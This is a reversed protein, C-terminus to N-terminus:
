FFGICVFLFCGLMKVVEPEGLFTNWNNFFMEPESTGVQLATLQGLVCWCVWCKSSSGMFRWMSWFFLSWVSAAPWWGQLLESSCFWRRSSLCRWHGAQDKFCIPRIWCSACPLPKKHTNPNKPTKKAVVSSTESQCLDLHPKSSSCFVSVVSRGVWPWM